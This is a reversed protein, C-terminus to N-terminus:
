VNNNGVLAIDKIRWKVEDETKLFDTDLIKIGYEKAVAREIRCGRACEWNEMLYLADVQGLMEISKSLYYIAGNINEPAEETFITDVVEIHLKNFKEIVEEREEKIQEETKGRMPQSIMVKM